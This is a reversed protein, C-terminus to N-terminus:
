LARPYVGSADEQTDSIVDFERPLLTHVEMLHCCTGGVMSGRVVSSDNTGVTDGLSESQLPVACVLVSSHFLIWVM